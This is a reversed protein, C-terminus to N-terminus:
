RQLNTEVSRDLRGRPQIISWGKRFERFPTTIEASGEIMDRMKKFMVETTITKSPAYMLDAKNEFNYRNGKHTFTLKYM